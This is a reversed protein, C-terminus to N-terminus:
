EWNILPRRLALMVRLRLDRLSIAMASGAAKSWITALALVARPM